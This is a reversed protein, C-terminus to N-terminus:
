RHAWGAEAAAGSNYFENDRDIGLLNQANISCRAVYAGTPTTIKVNRNTLGGSLEELPAARGKLWPFSSSCRM